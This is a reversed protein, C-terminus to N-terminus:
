EQGEAWEELAGLRKTLEAFDVGGAEGNGRREAFRANVGDYEGQLKVFRRELRKHADELQEVREVLTREPTRFPWM